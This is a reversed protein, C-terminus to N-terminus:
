VRLFGLTHRCACLQVITAQKKIWRLFRLGFFGVCMDKGAVHHDSDVIIIGEWTAFRQPNGIRLDSLPACGRLTEALMKPNQVKAM